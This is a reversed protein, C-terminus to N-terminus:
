LEKVLNYKKKFYGSKCKEVFQEAIELSISTFVPKYIDNCYFNGECDLLKYKGWWLCKKYKTVYYLKNDKYEESIIEYLIM